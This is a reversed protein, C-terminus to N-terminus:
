NLKYSVQEKELEDLLEQSINVKHKRSPMNLKVKEELEYVV